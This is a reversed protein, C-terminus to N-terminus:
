RNREAIKALELQVPRDQFESPNDLYESLVQYEIRNLKEKFWKIM